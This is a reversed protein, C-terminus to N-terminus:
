LQNRQHDGQKDNPQRALEGPMVQPPPPQMSSNVDRHRWQAWTTIPPKARFSNSSCDPESEVRRRNGKAERVRCKTAIDGEADTHCSEYDKQRSDGNPSSTSDRPAPPSSGLDLVIWSAVAFPLRPPLFDTPGYLGMGAPRVYAKPTVLGEMEVDRIWSVWRAHRLWVPQCGSSM